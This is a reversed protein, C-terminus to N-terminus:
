HQILPVAGTKKQDHKVRRCKETHPFNEHTSFKKVDPHVVFIAFILVRCFYGAICYYHIEVVFVIHNYM